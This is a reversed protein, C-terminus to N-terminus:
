LGRRTGTLRRPRPQAQPKDIASAPGRIEDGSDAADAVPEPKKTGEKRVTMARSDGDDSKEPDPKPTGEVRANDQKPTGEVRTEEAKPTGEVPVDEESPDANTKQGTLVLNYNAASGIDDPLYLTSLIMNGSLPNRQPRNVTTRGKQRRQFTRRASLTLQDIVMYYSQQDVIQFFNLLPELESDYTFYTKVELLGTEENVTKSKRNNIANINMNVHDGVDNIHQRVLLSASSESPLEMIRDRSREIEQNLEVIKEEYDIVTMPANRLNNTYTRLESQLSTIRDQMDLKMEMYGEWLEMVGAVVVVLAMLKFITKERKSYKRM